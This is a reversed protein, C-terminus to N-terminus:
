SLPTSGSRKTKSNAVTASQGFLTRAGPHCELWEKLVEALRTTIPVRRTTLQGRSRKKERILITGGEFDVDAAQARIMESRRAGTHAAFVFMPYVWPQRASSRVHTLLDEIEPLTLFLAHWLEAQRKDTLGGTQIRREIEQWTMFPPKEETKPFVLGRNPFVGTVLGMHVGWNWAARLSALEKKITIPSLRQGRAGKMVSRRDIHRQLDSAALSSMPFREGLTTAMHGLHIRVTGLSNSEM